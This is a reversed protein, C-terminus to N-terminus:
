WYQSMYELCDSCYSQHLGIQAKCRVCEGEARREWYLRRAREAGKDRCTKCQKYYKSRNRRGCTSCKLRQPIKKRTKKM